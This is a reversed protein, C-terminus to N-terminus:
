HEGSEKEKDDKVLEKRQIVVEKPAEIGVVLVNCADNRLRLKFQFKGPVRVLISPLHRPNYLREIEADGISVYNGHRKAMVFRGREGQHLQITAKGQGPVTFCVARGNVNQLAVYGIYVVEGPRRRLVLM